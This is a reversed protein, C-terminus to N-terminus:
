GSSSVLPSVGASLASLETALDRVGVAEIGEGKPYREDGSYFLFARDPRLDELAIRLGRDVTPALGRRVEVAWVHGRPLGLVLDVEVGTATRYFSAQTREPAARLLNEIVFGEWSAGAVPHGLLDELRDLRLLAHVIGSDRLYTKPSKVLRKGLNAAYPPLRRVLLRDVLLDLYRAVTKGDVALARALQAANFVGGQVHALMTWFRRLTEAPIRPGLQPIDRELYTRIFSERWTLSAEDTDALFSHPFGGRTWLRLVEAPDVERLDFPDLELYAIRGALSESSQRLLDVSASGLLLFHGAMEGSQIREDILGRLVQFLGPFRQVEDIVTLRDRRTGLYGRPDALKALDAPDELDLYIGQRQKVVARALTTKGVQRPGLLGVAPFQGLLQEIRTRLLRPLMNTIRSQRALNAANSRTPDTRPTLGQRELGAIRLRSIGQARAM